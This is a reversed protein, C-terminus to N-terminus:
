TGAPYSPKAPLTQALNGGVIARLAIRYTTWEAPISVGSEACRLLTTDSEQLLSLAADANDVKSPDHATCVAMVADIQNPTMLSDFLITGDSGWVFPLGLLGAAKLEAGFTPGIAKTM